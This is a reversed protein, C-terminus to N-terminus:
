LLNNEKCFQRQQFHNTSELQQKLQIKYGQTHLDKTLIQQLFSKEIGLQHSGPLNLKTSECHESRIPQFSLATTKKIDKTLGTTESKTLGYVKSENPANHHCLVISINRVTKAYCWIQLINKCDTNM